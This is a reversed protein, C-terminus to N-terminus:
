QQDYYSRAFYGRFCGLRKQAASGLDRKGANSDSRASPPVSLRRFIEVVLVVVVKLVVM